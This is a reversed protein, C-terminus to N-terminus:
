IGGVRTVGGAPIGVAGLMSSLSVAASYVLDPFQAAVLPGVVEEFFLRNLEVGPVFMEVAIM